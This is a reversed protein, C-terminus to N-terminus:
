PGGYLLWLAWTIFAGRIIALASDAAVSYTITRPYEGGMMFILRGALGIVCLWLSVTVYLEM